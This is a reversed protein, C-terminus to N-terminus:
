FTTQIRDWWRWDEGETSIWIIPPFTQKVHLPLVNSVFKQFCFTQQCWGAINKWDGWAFKGVLLKFKWQLYLDHSQIWAIKKFRKYMLSSGLYFLWRKKSYKPVFILAAQFLLFKRKLVWIPSFVFGAFNQWLFTVDKQVLFHISKQEKTNFSFTGKLM